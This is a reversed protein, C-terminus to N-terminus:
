RPPGYSSHCTGSECWLRWAASADRWGLQYGITLVVVLLLVEIVARAPRIDM